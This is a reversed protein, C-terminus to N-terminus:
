NPSHPNPKLQWKTLNIAFVTLRSRGHLTPINRCGLALDRGCEEQELNSQKEMHTVSYRNPCFVLFFNARVHCLVSVWNRRDFKRSESATGQLHKMQILHSSRSVSEWSWGPLLAGLWHSVAPFCFCHRLPLLRPAPQTTLSSFLSSSFHFVRFALCSTVAAPLHGAVAMASSCLAKAQLCSVPISADGYSTQKIARTHDACLPGALFPQKTRRGTVVRSTRGLVNAVNQEPKDLLDVRQQRM